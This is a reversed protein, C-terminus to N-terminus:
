QCQEEDGKQKIKSIIKAFEKFTIYQEEFAKKIRKLGKTVDKMKLGLESIQEIEVMVKMPM